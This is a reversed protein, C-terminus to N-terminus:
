NGAAEPCLYIPALPCEFYCNQAPLVPEVLWLDSVRCARHKHQPCVDIEASDKHSTWRTKGLESVLSNHSDQTRRGLAATILM